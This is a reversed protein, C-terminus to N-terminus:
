IEETEKGITININDCAMTEFPIELDKLLPEFIEGWSVIQEQAKQKEHHKMRAAEVAICFAKRKCYPIRYYLEVVAGGWAISIHELYSLKMDNPSM